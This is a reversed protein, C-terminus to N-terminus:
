RTPGAFPPNANPKSESTLPGGDSVEKNPSLTQQSAMDRGCGQMQAGAAGLGPKPSVIAEVKEMLAFLLENQTEEDIGDWWHNFGTRSRLEWLMVYVIRAASGPAQALSRRVIEHLKCSPNWLLSGDPM